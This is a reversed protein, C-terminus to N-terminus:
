AVSEFSDSLKKWVLSQERAQRIQHQTYLIIGKRFAAVRRKKFALLEDKASHSISKGKEVANDVATQCEEVKKQSQQAKALAKEAKEKEQLARVRRWMLEKAAFSDAAYYRILECLKLDEKASLKKEVVQTSVLLQGTLRILDSVKNITGYLNGYHILATGADGCARSLQLRKETKNSAATRVNKISAIYRLIFTRNEDFFEDEDNFNVFSSDFGKATTKILTFMRERRNKQKCMLDDNFELFVQLNTDERFSPHSVLRKLFIEHMAVTKQFATVYERQIDKKLKDMEEPTWASEGQKLKNLKKRSVSFDPKSPCPPILLGAYEEKEEFRDHLWVFEAHTREVQMEKKHFRSLTTNTHIIYTVKDGENTADVVKVNLADDDTFSVTEQEELM